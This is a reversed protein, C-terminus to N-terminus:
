KLKFGGSRYITRWNLWVWFMTLYHGLFHNKKIKLSSDKNLKLLEIVQETQEPVIVSDAKSYTIRVPVEKAFELNDILDVSGWLAQLDKLKFGSEQYKNKLALTRSSLWLAGALSAGPAVLDVSDINYKKYISNASYAAIGTGVSLGIINFKVKHDKLVSEIFNASEKCTKLCASATDKPDELLLYEPSICFVARNKPVQKMIWTQILQSSQWPAFIFTARNLKTIDGRTLIKISSKTSSKKDFSTKALFREFFPDIKM